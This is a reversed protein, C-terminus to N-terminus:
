QDIRICKIKYLSMQNSLMLFTRSYIRPYVAPFLKIDSIVDCITPHRLAKQPKCCELNLCFQMLIPIVMNLIKMQPPINDSLSKSNM